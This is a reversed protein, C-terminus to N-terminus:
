CFRMIPQCSLLRQFSEGHDTQTLEPEMHGPNEELFSVLDDGDIPAGVPDLFDIWVASLGDDQIDRFLLFESRQSQVLRIRYDHADTRVHAPTHEQREIKLFDSHLFDQGLRDILIMCFDQPLHSGRLDDVRFLGHGNLNGL